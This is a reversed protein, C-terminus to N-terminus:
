LAMIYARAKDKSYVVALRGDNSLSWADQGEITVMATEEQAKLRRPLDDRQWFGRNLCIKSTKGEGRRLAYTYTGTEEDLETVAWVPKKGFAGLFHGWHPFTGGGISLVKEGTMIDITSFSFSGPTNSTVLWRQKGLGEPNPSASRSFLVRPMFPTPGTTTSPADLKIRRVQSRTDLSFVQIVTPREKSNDCEALVVLHKDDPSFASYICSPCDDVSLPRPRRGTIFGSIDAGSPDFAYVKVNGPQGKAPPLSAIAIHQINHSISAFLAERKRFERRGLTCGDRTRLIMLYACRSKQVAFCFASGDPSFSVNGRFRSPLGDSVFGNEHSGIRWLSAGTTVSYVELSDVSWIVVRTRDPTLTVHVVEHERAKRPISILRKPQIKLAAANSPDPNQSSEDKASYDPHSRM